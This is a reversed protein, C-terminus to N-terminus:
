PVRDGASDRADADGGRSGAGGQETAVVSVRVRCGGGDLAFGPEGREERGHLAVGRERDVLGVVGSVMESVPGMEAAECLDPANAPSSVRAGSAVRVCVRLASASAKGSGSRFGSDDSGSGDIM